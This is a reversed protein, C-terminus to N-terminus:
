SFFNIFFLFFNLFVFCFFFKKAVVKPRFNSKNSIIASSGLGSAGAMAFILCVKMSGLSSTKRVIREKELNRRNRGLFQGKGTEGATFQGDVSGRDCGKTRKGICSLVFPSNKMCRDDVAPDLEGREPNDRM